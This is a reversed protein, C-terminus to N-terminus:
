PPKRASRPDPSCLQQLAAYALEMEGEVGVSRDVRFDTATDIAYELLATKGVGPEGYVALVGSRGLLAGSWCITSCVESASVVSCVARSARRVM